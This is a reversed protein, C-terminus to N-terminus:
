VLVFRFVNRFTELGIRGYVGMQVSFTKRPQIINSVNLFNGTIPNGSTWIIVEFIRSIWVSRLSLKNNVNKINLINVFNAGGVSTSSQDNFRIGEM